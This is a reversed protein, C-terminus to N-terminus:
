KRSRGSRFYLQEIHALLQHKTYPRSAAEFAIIQQADDFSYLLLSGVRQAREHYHLRNMNLHYEAEQLFCRAMPEFIGPFPTKELIVYRM